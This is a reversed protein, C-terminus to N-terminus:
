SQPVSFAYWLCFKQSIKHRFAILSIKNGFIHDAILLPWRPSVHLFTKIDTGSVSYCHGLLFIYIHNYIIYLHYIFLYIFSQSPM